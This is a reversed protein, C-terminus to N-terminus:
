NVMSKISRVYDIRQIIEEEDIYRLADHYSKQIRPNLSTNGSNSLIHLSSFTDLAFRRFLDYKGYQDIRKRKVPDISWYDYIIDLSFKMLELLDTIRRDSTSKGYNSVPQGDKLSFLDYKYDCDEIEAVIFGVRRIMCGYCCGLNCGFRSSICSHTNKLYDKRRSLAFMEAKTNDEFPTIIDVDHNLFEHILKASSKQVIPDSTYTIRDFLGFSPQYMTTGCESLIIKKASHDYACIGGLLLYLVGRTQSYGKSIQKPVTITDLPISEPMLVNSELNKLYGDLRTSKIHKINLAIIDDYKMKSDLVGVYSDAGGSFLCVAKKGIMEPKFNTQYSSHPVLDFKIDKSFITLGLENLVTTVAAEDLDRLTLHTIPIRVTISGARTKKHQLLYRELEHFAVATAYLDYENTSKDSYPDFASEATYSNIIPIPPIEIGNNIIRIQIPPPLRTM